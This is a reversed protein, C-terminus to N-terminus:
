LISLSLSKISDTQEQIVVSFSTLILLGLAHYTVFGITPPPLEVSLKNYCVVASFADFM